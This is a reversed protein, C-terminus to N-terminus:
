KAVKVRAARIVKGNLTYGRELVEIIDGSKMGKREEEMVAEHIEPNFQDTAEIEEFGQEGLFNELQDFTKVFGQVLADDKKDKAIQAKAREMSEIVPLLTKLVEERVDFMLRTMREAEEKKYNLFDAKARKWGNLCEDKEIRVSDLEKQM